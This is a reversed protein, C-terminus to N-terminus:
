RVVVIKKAPRDGPKVLYIGPISFHFNFNSVSSSVLQHGMIDYINVTEGDPNYVTIDLGCTEIKVKPNEIEEIGVPAASTTICRILWVIDPNCFSYPPEYDNLHGWTAGNDDSFWNADPVNVGKAGFILDDDLPQIVVWLSSDPPLAIASDLVIRHWAFTGETGQYQQTHVLTGPADDGGLHINVRVPHNHMYNDVATLYNHGQLYEAPIKIGIRNGIPMSYLGKNQVDAGTYSLTDNEERLAGTFIAELSVDHALFQYPNLAAGNSWCLFRCGEAPIATLTVTDRYSYVGGGTVSGRSTDSSAVTVTCAIGSGYLTDPEIGLIAIQHLNFAYNNDIAVNGLSFFGNDEGDFGWNFSFFGNTDYGDCVFEHGGAPGSGGYLVPRRHDIEDKLISAWESQTFNERRAGTLAPNYKFFTRLANEACPTHLADGEEVIDYAGSGNQSLTGYMMDVAVGCHYLLTAVAMTETSDSVATIRTPMHSWDYATAGFDATQVGYYPSTYSHTGVGMDPWQWYRMVQGMATAVCGTLTKEGSANAPCLENYYPCQGWETELLPGVATEYVAKPTTGSLLLSWWRHERASEDAMVAQIQTDYSELWYVFAANLEGDPRLSKENLSYGLVPQVRSDASTLVFGGGASAFLYMTEWQLPMEHLSSEDVHLFTAAAQRAAQPTVPKAEAKASLSVAMAFLIFLTLPRKMTM